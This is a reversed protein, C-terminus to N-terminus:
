EQVITMYVQTGPLAYGISIVIETETNSVVSWVATTTDGDDLEVYGEAEGNNLIYLKNGVREFADFEIVTYNGEVYINTAQPTDTYGKGNEYYVINSVAIGLSENPHNIKWEEYKYKIYEADFEITAEHGSTHSINFLVFEGLGDSGGNIYNITFGDSITCQSETISGIYSEVYRQMEQANIFIQADTVGFADFMVVFDGNDNFEATKAVASGDSSTVSRTPIGTANVQVDFAFEFGSFFGNDNQMTQHKRHMVEYSYGMEFTYTDGSKTLRTNDVYEGNQYKYIVISGDEFTEGPSFITSNSVFQYDDYSITTAEDLIRYKSTLENGQHFVKLTDGEVVNVTRVAYDGNDGNGNFYYVQTTGTGWMDGKVVQFPIKNGESDLSHVDETYAEIVSYENQTITLETNDITITSQGATLNSIRDNLNQIKQQYGIIQNQLNSIEVNKSLISSELESKQTNLSFLENNKDSLQTQLQSISEQDVVSQSELDAIQQELNVKEQRVVSIQGDLISVQNTLSNITAQNSKINETLTSVEATLADKSNTLSQIQTELEKKNADMTEILQSLEKNSQELEQIKQSEETPASASVGNNSFILLGTTSLVSLLAIVSLGWIVKKKKNNSEKLQNYAHISNNRNKNIKTM